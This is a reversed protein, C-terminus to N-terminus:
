RFGYAAGARVVYGFSPASGVFTGGDSVDTVGSTWKAAAGAFFGLPDTRWLYVDAGARAGGLWREGSSPGGNGSEISPSFREGLAEAHLALTFASGLERVYSVGIFAEAFTTQVGAVRSTATTYAAGLLAYVDGVLLLHGDVEAGLRPPGRDLASGVVLAADIFAHRSPPRETVSETPIPEAVRDGTLPQETAPEEPPLPPGPAAAVPPAPAPVPLPTPKTEPAVPVEKNHAMLSALTGIVLGVARWREEPADRQEFGMARVVWRQERRLAVELRAHLPDGWSVIAVVNPEQEGQAIVCSEEAARSCADLLSQKLLPTADPPAIEVAVLAPAM